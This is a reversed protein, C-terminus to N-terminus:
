KGDEKAKMDCALAAEAVLRTEVRYQHQVQYSDREIWDAWKRLRNLRDGHLAQLQFLTKDKALVRARRAKGWRRWYRNGLRTYSLWEVAADIRTGVRLAWQDRLWTWTSISGRGDCYMCPTADEPDDDCIYAGTGQCEDCIM